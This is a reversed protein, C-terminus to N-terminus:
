RSRSGDENTMPREIGNVLLVQLHHLYCLFAEFLVSEFDYLSQHSDRCLFPQAQFALDRNWRVSPDLQDVHRAVFWPLIVFPDLGVVSSGIKGGARGIRTM